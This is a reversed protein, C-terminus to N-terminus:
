GEGEMLRYLRDRDAVDVRPPGMRYTHLPELDPAPAGADLGRRLTEAIVASLTEGREAARRKLERMLHDPLLLTTKTKMLIIM